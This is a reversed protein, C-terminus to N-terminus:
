KPTQVKKVPVKPKTAHIVAKGDVVKGVHHNPRTPMVNKPQANQPKNNVKPEVHPRDPCADFMKKYNDNSGVFRRACMAEQGRRYNEDIIRSPDFTPCNKVIDCDAKKVTCADYIKKNTEEVCLQRASKTVTRHTKRPSQTRKITKVKKTLTKHANKSPTKKTLTKHAKKTLTKHAKKSPTKLAKKSPTKSLTRKLTKPSKSTQTKRTSMTRKTIRSTLRGLKALNTAM